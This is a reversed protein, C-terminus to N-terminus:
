ERQDQGRRAPPRVDGLAGPGSCGRQLVAVVGGRDVVRGPSRFRPPQLRARDLRSTIRPRFSREDSRWPKQKLSVARASRRAIIVAFLQGNTSHLALAYLIM